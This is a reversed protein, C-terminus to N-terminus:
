AAKLWAYSALCSTIRAKKALRVRATGIACVTAYRQAEWTIRFDAHVLRVHTGGAAGPALEFTVTSEVVRQEGNDDPAANRDRERYAYRLFRNPEAKLLEIETFKPERAPEREDDNNLMWADLLERETLARWVKEPPEDFDCEFVIEDVSETDRTM